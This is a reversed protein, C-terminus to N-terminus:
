YLLNLQNEVIRIQERSDYRFCSSLLTISQHRTVVYFYRPFGAKCPVTRGLVSVHVDGIIANCNFKQESFFKNLEQHTVQIM